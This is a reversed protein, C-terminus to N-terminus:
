HGFMMGLEPCTKVAFEVLMAGCFGVLLLSPVREARLEM